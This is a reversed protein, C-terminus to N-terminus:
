CSNKCLGQCGYLCLKGTKYCENVKQLQESSKLESIEINSREKRDTKM